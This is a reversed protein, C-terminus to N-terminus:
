AARRPLDRLLGRVRSWIGGPSGGAEAGTRSWLDFFNFWQDPYRRILEEMAECLVAPDTEGDEGRGTGAVRISEGCVLRYRRFGELILVGPLIPAGSAAALEWPGSPIEAPAGFLSVTLNRGGLPRDGQMAVIENRRLGVLLRVFMWPDEGAYVVRIGSARRAERAFRAAEEEERRMVVTIPYGARALAALSLEWQGLHMGLVIVGREGALSELLARELDPGGAIWEEMDDQGYPPLETYAVMFRSFNYFLRYTLRLSAGGRKGTVRELNRRAARRENGMALFCVSTMLHHLPPRLFLPVRPLVGLILKWSLDRNWGHTYWRDRPGKSVLHNAGVAPIKGRVDEHDL